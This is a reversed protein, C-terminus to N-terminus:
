DFLIGYPSSHLCIYELFLCSTKRIFLLKICCLFYPASTPWLSSFVCWLERLLQHSLWFSCQSSLFLTVSLMKFVNILNQKQCKIYSCNDSLLCPQMTVCSISICLQSTRSNVNMCARGSFVCLEVDSCCIPESFMWVHMVHCVQCVCM